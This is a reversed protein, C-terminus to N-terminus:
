LYAVQRTSAQIGRCYYFGLCHCVGLIRASCPQPQAKEYAPVSVFPAGHLHNFASHKSISGWAQIVKDSACVCISLNDPRQQVLGEAIEADMRVILHNDLGIQCSPLIVLM